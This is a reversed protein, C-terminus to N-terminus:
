RKIRQGADEHQFVWAAFRSPSIPEEAAIADWDEDSGTGVSGVREADEQVMRRARSIWVECNSARLDVWGRGAAGAVDGGAPPMLVTPGRYVLNGAVIVPLGISVMLSRLDADRSVLEAARRALDAGDGDALSRVSPALESLIQAEYLMKSLRPPGLLEFAVSRVGHERELQALRSV